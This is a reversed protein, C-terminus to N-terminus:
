ATVIINDMFGTHSIEISLTYEGQVGYGVHADISM